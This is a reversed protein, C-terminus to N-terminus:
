VMRAESQCGKVQSSMGKRPPRKIARGSATDTFTLWTKQRCCTEPRQPVLRALTHFQRHSPTATTRTTVTCMGPQAPLIIVVLHPVNTLVLLRCGLYPISVSRNLAGSDPARPAGSSTTMTWKMGCQADTATTQHKTETMSPAGPNLRCLCGQIAWCCFKWGTQLSLSRRFSEGWTM